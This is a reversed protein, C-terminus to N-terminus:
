KIHLHKPKKFIFPIRNKIYFLKRNEQQLITLISSQQAKNGGGDKLSRRFFIIVHDHNKKEIPACSFAQIGLESHYRIMDPIHNYLLHMYPTIDSPKYLGKIFGSTNTTGSTPTLFLEIWKKAENEFEDGTTTIDLLSTYLEYFKDWLQRILIARSQCFLNNFNFEQLVKLKNDGMLSTYNWVRSNQEQWFHFTIGIRKMENCITKRITESLDNNVRLEALVLVWLRDTIRLMVHLEDAIWNELPIMPFLPKRIHGPCSSHNNILMNMNKKEWRKNYLGIEKKTCKCYPCFYTANAANLGLCLALFKWDSSFFLEFNWQVGFEDILGNENIDQLDRILPALAKQLLLYNEVGPYLVVTYHHDPVWLNNINNLISCTVMVHKVNRGVNRGDGSIRLKIFPNESDLINEKIFFPIMYKLIDQIRRYGAKGISETVGQIVEEDNIHIEDNNMTTTVFDEINIDMIHLPIAGQMTKDINSKEESVVYERAVEPSIKTIERFSNRSIHGYDMAYVYAQKRKKELLKDKVGFDVFWDQQDVSLTLSKLQVKDNPHYLSAVECDVHNKVGEGIHKVRARKTSNSLTEIPQLIRSRNCLDRNCAVCKLQLGFVLVGSLLSTKKPNYTQSFLNAAQTASKWSEVQLGKDFEIKFCPVKNNAHQEESLITYHYTNSSDRYEIKSQKPYDHLEIPNTNVEDM